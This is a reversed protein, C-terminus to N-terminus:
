LIVILRDSEHQACPIMGYYRMLGIENISTGNNNNNSTSDYPGNEFGSMSNIDSSNIIVFTGVYDNINNTSDDLGLFAGNNTDLVLIGCETLSGGGV